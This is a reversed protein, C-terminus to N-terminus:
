PNSFHRPGGASESGLGGIVDKGVAVIVLGYEMFRRIIFSIAAEEEIEECFCGGETTIVVTEHGIVDM